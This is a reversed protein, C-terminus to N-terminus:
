GHPAACHSTGSSGKIGHGHENDNGHGPQPDTHGYGPNSGGNNDDNGHRPQPDTHGKGNNNDSM